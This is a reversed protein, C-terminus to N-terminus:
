RGRRRQPIRREVAGILDALGERLVDGSSIKEHYPRLMLFFRQQEPALEEVRALSIQSHYGMDTVEIHLLNMVQCCFLWKTLALEKGRFGLEYLTEGVVHTIALWGASTKGDVGTVKFMMPYRKGLEYLTWTWDALTKKWDQGAVPDPMRFQKCVESAVEALLAERSPFYNYLAMSVTGLRRAVSALTFQEVSCNELLKLSEALIAERSIRAPRGVRARRARRAGTSAEVRADM